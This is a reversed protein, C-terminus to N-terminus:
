AGIAASTAEASRETLEVAGVRRKRVGADSLGNM